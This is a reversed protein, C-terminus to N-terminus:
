CALTKTKGIIYIDGNIVAVAHHHRRDPLQALTKWQNARPTYQQVYQSPAGREGGETIDLGGIALVMATHLPRSPEYRPRPIDRTIPPSSQVRMPPINKPNQKQSPVQNQNRLREVTPHTPGAVRDQQSSQFIFFFM